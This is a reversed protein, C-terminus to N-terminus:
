LAQYWAVTEKIAEEHPTAGNGFNVEFRSHDIIFPEEFEYMMEVVEAVNKNFLGVLRLMLAGAARTRIPRGIAAAVLDVFQRTTITEASPVHWVQGFAEDHQSLTVLARAFDRIYTLTHPLDIDGTLNVTKGSLAAAFLMEGAMSDTVRPGYFDSARGITVEIKGQRHADLLLNAVQARARGKRTQAAYPLAEHIPRGATPGYMYVNSGFVLKARTRSVGAIISAALPPFLEPWRHYPPQVCCFVVEAAACVAAVQSPDNADAAILTVGGPLQEEVIGSRNVINVPHGQAVLEDIIALGLQGTGLIVHKVESEM